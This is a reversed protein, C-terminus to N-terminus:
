RLDQLSRQPDVVPTTLANHHVLSPLPPGHRKTQQSPNITNIFLPPLPYPVSIRTTGAVTKMRFPDFELYRKLVPLLIVGTAKMRASVASSPGCSRPGVLAAVGHAAGQHGVAVWEAYRVDGEIGFDLSGGRGGGVIDEENKLARRQM